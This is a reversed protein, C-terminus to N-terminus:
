DGIRFILLQTSSKVLTMNPGYCNGAMGRGLHIQWSQGEKLTTVYNITGGHPSAAIGNSDSHSANSHIRTEDYNLPFDVFYSSLGCLRQDAEYIYSFQYTGAPFTITSASENYTLGPIANKILSMPVTQKSGNAVGNLFNTQSTELRFFAPAPISLTKMTGLNKIVGSSTIGLLQDTSVSGEELGELRMPDKDAKIHIKNTAANIGIGLNNMFYNGFGFSANPNASLQVIPNTTTGDYLRLFSQDGSWSGISFSKSKDAKASLITFSEANNNKQSITLEGLPTTTGIGVNGEATVIFDNAQQATSIIGSKPNDKAGDVHFIGKPSETNIGVQCFGTTFISLQLLIIIRKM